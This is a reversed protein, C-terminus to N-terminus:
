KLEQGRDAAERSLRLADRLAHESETFEHPGSRRSNRAVGLQARVLAGTDGLQKAVDRCRLWAERAQSTAGFREAITAARERVPGEMHLAGTRRSLEAAEE